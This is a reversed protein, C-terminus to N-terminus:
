QAARPACSIGAEIALLVAGLALGLLMAALLEVLAAGAAALISQIFKVMASQAGIKALASIIGAAAAIKEWNDKIMKLADEGGLQFIQVIFRVAEADQNYEGRMCNEFDDMSM